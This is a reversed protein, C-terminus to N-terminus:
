VRARGCQPCFRADARLPTACGQCATLRVNPGLGSSSSGNSSVASVGLLVHQVLKGALEVNIALKTREARRPRIQYRAIQATGWAEALLLPQDPVLTWAPSAAQVRVRLALPEALYEGPWAIPRSSQRGDAPLRAGVWILLGVCRDVQLSEDPTLGDFRTNLYPAALRPASLREAGTHGVAPARRAQNAPLAASYRLIARGISIRAGDALRVPEDPLAQTSDVFTGFTSGLDLLTVGEPQPLLMAHCQSVGDSDLVIDNDTTRGITAAGRLDVVRETHGREEIYLRGFM